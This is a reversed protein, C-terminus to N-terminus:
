RCTASDVPRRVREGSSGFTSRAQSAEGASTARFPGGEASQAADAEILSGKDMLVMSQMCRIAAKEIYIVM